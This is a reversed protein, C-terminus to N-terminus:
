LSILYSAKLLSKDEAFMIKLAGAPKQIDERM